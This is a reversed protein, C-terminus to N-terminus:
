LFPRVELSVRVSSSTERVTVAAFWPTVPLSLQASEPTVRFTVLPPSARREVLSPPSPRPQIVM